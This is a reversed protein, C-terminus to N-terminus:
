LKLHRRITNKDAPLREPANARTVLIMREGEATELRLKRSHYDITYGPDKLLNGTLV